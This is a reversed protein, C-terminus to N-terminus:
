MAVDKGQHITHFSPGCNQTSSHTWYDVTTLSSLPIAHESSFDTNLVQVTCCNGTTSLATPRQSAWQNSSNM